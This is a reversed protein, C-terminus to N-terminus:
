YRRDNPDYPNGYADHTAGRQGVGVKPPEYPNGYADCAPRRPGNDPVAIRSLHEAVVPAMEQAILPALQAPHPLHPAVLRIIEAAITKADPAPQILQDAPEMTAGASSLLDRLMPLDADPVTVLFRTM